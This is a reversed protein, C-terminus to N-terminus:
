NKIPNTFSLVNYVYKKRALVIFLVLVGINIFLSLVISWSQVQSMLLRCPMFIMSFIPLYSGFYGVGSTLSAESSSFLCVYYIVILGLYFPSQLSSAEEISRIKTAAMLLVLQVLLMGIFLFFLSIALSVLGVSNQLFPAVWKSISPTELVVIGISKLWALLGIGDDYIFRILVALFVVFWNLVTQLLISLWGIIIKSYYHTSLSVSTGIMELINSTKEAVMENALMSAYSLMMFYIITILVFLNEHNGNTSEFVYEITASRIQPYKQLVDQQHFVEVQTQMLIKENTALEKTSSVVYKGNEFSLLLSSTPDAEFYDTLLLGEDLNKLAIKQKTNIQLSVLVALQDFFVCCLSFVFLIMLFRRNTKNFFRRKLSFWCLELM